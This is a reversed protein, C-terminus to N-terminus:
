QAVAAIAHVDEATLGKGGIGWSGGRVEEIVVWTYPRLAEGEISVMTDTLKAIIEKKQSETFVKEILKVEILPMQTDKRISNAQQKRFGFGIHPLEPLWDQNHTQAKQGRM